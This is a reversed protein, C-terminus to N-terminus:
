GGMDAQTSPASETVHSADLWLAEKMSSARRRSDVRRHLQFPSRSSSTTSPSGLPLLVWRWKAPMPSCAREHSELADRLRRTPRSQELRAAAADAM